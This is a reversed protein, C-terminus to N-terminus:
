FKNRRKTFVDYKTTLNPNHIEYILPMTMKLVIYLIGYELCFKAMTLLLQGVAAAPSASLTLETDAETQWM